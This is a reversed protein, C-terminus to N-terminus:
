LGCDSRVLLDPFGTNVYNQLRRYDDDDINGDANVDMLCEPVSPPGLNDLYRRLLRVDRRDVVGDDNLDGPLNPQGRLELLARYANVRGAGFQQTDGLDDASRCLILWVDEPGLPNNPPDHYQSDVVAMSDQVYSFLLAAVGAVLPAAWSTAGENARYENGPFGTVPPAIFPDGTNEAQTCIVQTGFAAINVICPNGSASCPDSTTGCSCPDCPGPDGCRSNPALVDAMTLNSVAFVKPHRSIDTANGPQTIVCGGGNGVAAVIFIGASFAAEVANEFRLILDDALAGHIAPDPYTGEFQFDAVCINVGVETKLYEAYELGSAVWELGASFSVFGVSPTLITGPPDPAGYDWQDYSFMTGDAMVGCHFNYGQVVLPMLRVGDSDNSGGAVGAIGLGNNRQAAIIGAVRSGHDSHGHTATEFNGAEVDAPDYCDPDFTYSADCIPPLPICPDSPPNGPDTCSGIPGSACAFPDLGGLDAMHSDFNYGPILRRYLDAHHWDVTMDIVAVIVEPVGTEILWAQPLDLDIDYETTQQTNANHSHWQTPFFEDNPIDLGPQNPLSTTIITARPYLELDFDPVWPIPGPDSTRVTEVHMEYIKALKGDTDWTHEFLFFMPWGLPPAAETHICQGDAFISIQEVDGVTFTWFILVTVDYDGPSYQPESIGPDQGAVLVTFLFVFAIALFLLRLGPSMPFEEGESLRTIGERRHMRTWSSRGGRGGFGVCVSLLSM